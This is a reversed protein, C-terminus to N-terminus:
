NTLTGRLLSKGSHTADGDHPEDSVDVLRYRALDTGPPVALQARATDPLSGIAVMKGPTDPDLLWVEHFGSTLPLNRVDILLRGDSLVRVDGGASAPVTELPALTARATVRTDPQRDTLRDFGVTGAVAFVAAAAASIVPALWRPRSRRAQHAALDVVPAPPEAPPRSSAVGAEIAQWVHEAPAPLDRLGDTQSGIGAVDRLAQIEHRCGACHELHDLETLDELEESLALLVLRDPDLHQM